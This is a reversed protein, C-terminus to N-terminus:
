SRFRQVPNQNLIRPSPTHTRSRLYKVMETENKEENQMETYAEIESESSTSQPSPTPLATAIRSQLPLSLPRSSYPDFTSYTTMYGTDEEVEEVTTNNIDVINPRTGSTLGTEAETDFYNPHNRRQNCSTIRQRAALVTAKRLM